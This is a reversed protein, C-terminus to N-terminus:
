LHCINICAPGSSLCILRGWMDRGKQMSFLIMCRKGLSFLLGKMLNITTSMTPCSVTSLLVLENSEDIVCILTTHIYIIKAIGHSFEMKLFGPVSNTMPKKGDKKLGWRDSHKLVKLGLSINGTKGKEQNPLIHGFSITGM